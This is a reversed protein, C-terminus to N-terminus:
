RTPQETPTNSGPEAPKEPESTEAEDSVYFWSDTGNIYLYGLHKPQNKPYLVAGGSEGLDGLILLPDGHLGTWVTGAGDGDVFLEVARQNATDFVSVIGGDGDATALIVEKGDRAHVCLRGDGQESIAKIVPEGAENYVALAGGRAGSQIAVAHERTGQYLRMVGGDKVCQFEVVDQGQGNRIRMLGDGVDSMLEMVPRGDDNVIRLHRIDVPLDPTVLRPLLMAAALLGPVTVLLAVWRWRRISRELGDLRIRLDENSQSEIAM